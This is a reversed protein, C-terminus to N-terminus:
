NGLVDSVHVAVPVDGKVCDAVAATTVVVDVAGLVSVDDLVPEFVGDDEFISVGDADRVLVGEDEFVSVGVADREFVGEDEIVSVGDADRVSVAEDEFVSVGDADRVPVGEGEFVSVGDADRVIVGDVEAVMDDDDDAIGDTGTATPLVGGVGDIVADEEDKGESDAAAELGGVAGAVCVNTTDTVLDGDHLLVGTM